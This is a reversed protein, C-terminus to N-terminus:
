IARWGNVFSMGFKILDKGKGLILSIGFHSSSRIECIHM